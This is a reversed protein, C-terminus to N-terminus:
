VTEAQKRMDEHQDTEDVVEKKIIEEVIDEMTVVGVVTEYHDLVIAMHIKNAILTNFLIDLKTDVSVKLIKRRGVEGVIKKDTYILDKVLLMNSINDKFKKYVPIRTHGRGKIEKLLEPTIEQGEELMYVVKKPTMIQEVEKDSFELAGKMIMKEDADVNSEPNKEHEDIIASLEQKTFPTTMERGLLKDLGQAIPWCVPYLVFRFIKVLFISKAGVKLPYKSCYAQPLIEGFVVILATSSAVAFIGTFLGGLFISLVSNVLVNGVLLTSLLLNGDKRVPYIKKAHENGLDAKRKVESASLSMLGLTLGSFVGSLIILGIIIAIEM